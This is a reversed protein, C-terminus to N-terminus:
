GPGAEGAILRGLAPNPQVGLEEALDRIKDPDRNADRFAVVARPLSGYLWRNLRRREPIGIECLPDLIESFRRTAQTLYADLQQRILLHPHGASPDLPSLTVFAVQEGTLLPSSILLQRVQEHFLSLEDVVVLCGTQAITQYIPWMTLITDPLLADLPYPQIRVSRGRLSDAGRTVGAVGATLIQEITEDSDVFPRWKSRTPGYRDMIWRSGFEGVLELLAAVPEPPNALLDAAEMATMAVTVVPLGIEPATPLGLNEVLHLHLPSALGSIDQVNSPSPRGVVSTLGWSKAEDSPVDTMAIGVLGGTRDRALGLSRRSRISDETLLTLSSPTLLVAALRASTALRDLEKFEDASAAKLGTASPRVKWVSSLAETLAAAPPGDAPAHLLLLDSRLQRPHPAVFNTANRHAPAVGQQRLLWNSASSALAAGLQDPTAFEGVLREKSVTMRLINIREGRDGEGTLADLFQVEWKAHQPVMFILRPVGSRVAQQYELETISRREPNNTDPIYGYRFAFLGVYLDASAVDSLCRDVPREDAAVYDEMAIVDFNLSRLARYARDRHVVLDRFTSSM